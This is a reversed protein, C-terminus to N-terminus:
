YIKLLKKKINQNKAIIQNKDDNDKLFPSNINEELDDEEDDPEILSYCCSWKM